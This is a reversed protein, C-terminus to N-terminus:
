QARPHTNGEPSTSTFGVKDRDEPLERGCLTFALVLVLHMEGQTQAGAPGGQLSGDRPRSYGWEEVQVLLIPAFM